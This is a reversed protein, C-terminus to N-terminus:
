SVASGLARASLAAMERGDFPPIIFNRRSIGSPSAAYAAQLRSDGWCFVWSFLLSPLIPRFTLGPRPASLSVGSPAAQRLVDTDVGGVPM